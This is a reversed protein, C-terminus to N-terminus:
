TTDAISHDEQEHPRSWPTYSEIKSAATATGLNVGCIWIVWIRKMSLILELRQLEMCGAQIWGRGAKAMNSLRDKGRLAGLIEEFSQGVDRRGALRRTTSV